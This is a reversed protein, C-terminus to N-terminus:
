MMEFYAMNNWNMSEVVYRSEEELWGRNRSAIAVGQKSKYTIKVM